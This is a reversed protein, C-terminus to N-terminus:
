LNRTISRRGSGGAAPDRSAGIRKDIVSKREASYHPDIAADGVFFFALRLRTRAPGLPDIIALHLHEPYLTAIVNPVRYGCVQWSALEFEDPAESDVYPRLEFSPLPAGGASPLQLYM